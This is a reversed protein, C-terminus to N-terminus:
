PWSLNMEPSHSLSGCRQLNLFYADRWKSTLLNSFKPHLVFHTQESDMLSFPAKWKLCYYFLDTFVKCIQYKLQYLLMGMEKLLQM